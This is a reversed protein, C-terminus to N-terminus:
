MASPTALAATMRAAWGAASLARSRGKLSRDAAIGRRADAMEVDYYAPLAKLRAIWAEADARDHVATTRAVYDANDFPGSDSSFPEREQDFGIGDLDDDVTWALFARNLEDEAGLGAGKLSVLRARFGELAAKRGAVARPSDDPWLALAARDGELGASVPDADRQFRDFDAILGQLAPALADAARATTAAGLTLTLALSLAAGARNM